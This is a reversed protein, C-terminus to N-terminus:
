LDDGFIDVGGWGLLFDAFEGLNFGLRVGPFAAAVVHVDTYVSWAPRLFDLNERGGFEPATQIEADIKAHLQAWEERSMRLHGYKQNFDFKERWSCSNCYKKSNQQIDLLFFPLLMTKGCYAKGRAVARGGPYFIESNVFPLPVGINGEEVHYNGSHEHFVFAEGGRLEALPGYNYMDVQLGFAYVKVGFGTGVGATLIDSADDLRNQWYDSGTSCGASLLLVAAVLFHPYRRSSRKM